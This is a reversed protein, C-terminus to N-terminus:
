HVCRSEVERGVPFSALTAYDGPSPAGAVNADGALVWVHADLAATAGFRVGYFLTSDIGRRRLMVQAALGREFCLARLRSRKAARDIAWGVMEILYDQRKGPLLITVPRSAIRGLTRLKVLRVLPAALVILMMAEALAFREEWNFRRFKTLVGAPKQIVTGEEALVM